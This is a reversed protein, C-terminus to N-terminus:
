IGLQWKKVASIPYVLLLINLTLNDRIFIALLVEIAVVVLATVWIPLRSTLLFALLCALIDGVVNLISDGYYNLSLTEARYREIILPTNEIVEWFSELAVAYVARTGLSWGRRRGILWFLLYFAVGHILHTLTYADLFRQSNEQSDTNFSIFGPEGSPGWPGRGMLLLIGVVLALISVIVAAYRWKSEKSVGHMYMM